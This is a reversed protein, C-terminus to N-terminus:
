AKSRIKEYSAIVVLFSLVLEGCLYTLDLIKRKRLNGSSSRLRTYSYRRVPVRPGLSKESGTM